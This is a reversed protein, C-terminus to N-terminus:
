GKVLVCVGTLLLAIAILLFVWWPVCYFVLAAAGAGIAAGFLRRASQKQGCNRRM